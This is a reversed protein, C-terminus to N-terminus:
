SAEEKQATPYALPLAKRLASRCIAEAKGATMFGYNTPRGALAAPSCQDAISRAVPELVSRVLRQFDARMHLVDTTASLDGIWARAPGDLAAWAQAKATALAGDTGDHDGAARAINAAMSGLARVSTDATAVCDHLAARVPAARRGLLPVRLDLSDHVLEEVIAEQNQYTIGVIEISVRQPLDALADDEHGGLSAITEAELTAAMGDVVNSAEGIMSPVGRWMARQADHKLPMYTPTGAKATQPKSFRWATMFEVGQRNQPTLKDGNSLVLGTVGDRDGVLRIRRSQWALVSVPGAPIAALDRLQTQPHQWTWVPRDDSSAPTRVLNFALTEALSTGHIVIGGIQGVWAPGIPYSKGGSTDPDGVVGTRIGSPDFAQCHILWVAAEAASIRRLAAGGRTTMFPSGNPVDSILKELGSAEGKASRLDAVQCFPREAHFLDFRDDYRDLYGLVADTDIGDKLVQTIAAASHFGIADHVIALLLRLLAFSQTPLECALRRITAAQAFCERLSLEAFGGDLLLVPIWPEDRLDFSM